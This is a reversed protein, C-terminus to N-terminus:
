KINAKKSHQEKLYTGSRREALFFARINNEYCLSFYAGPFCSALAVYKWPISHFM